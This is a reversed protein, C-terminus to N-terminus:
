AFEEQIGKAPAKGSMSSGYCANCMPRTPDGGRFAVLKSTKMKQCSRCEFTATVTMRAFPLESSRTLDKIVSINEGFAECIINILDHGPAKNGMKTITGSKSPVLTTKRPIEFVCVTKKVPVFM